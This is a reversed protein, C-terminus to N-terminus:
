MCICGYWETYICIRTHTYIQICVSFRCTHNIAGSVEWQPVVRKTLSSHERCVREEPSSASHTWVFPHIKLHISCSRLKSVWLTISLTIRPLHFSLILEKVTKDLLCLHEKFINSPPMFTQILFMLFNVGRQYYCCWYWFILTLFTPLSYLFTIELFPPRLSHSSLIQQAM